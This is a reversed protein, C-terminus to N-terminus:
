DEKEDKIDKKTQQISLYAPLFNEVKLIEFLLDHDSQVRL